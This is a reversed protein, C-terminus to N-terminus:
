ENIDNFIYIAHISGDNEKCLDSKRLSTFFLLIKNPNRKIERNNHLHRSLGIDNLQIGTDDNKVDSNRLPKM